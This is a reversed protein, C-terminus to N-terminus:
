HGPMGSTTSLRVYFMLTFSSTETLDKTYDPNVSPARLLVRDGDIDTLTVRMAEGERGRPGTLLVCDHNEVGYRQSVPEVSWCKHQYTFPYMLTLGSPLGNMAQEFRECRDSLGSMEGFTMPIDYLQLCAFRSNAYREDPDYFTRGVRIRPALDTELVTKDSNVNHTVTQDNVM